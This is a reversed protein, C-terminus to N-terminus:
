KIKEVYEVWEKQIITPFGRDDKNIRINLYPTLTNVKDSICKMADMLVTQQSTAIDERIVKKVTKAGMYFGGIYTITQTGEYVEFVIQGYKLTDKILKKHYEDM